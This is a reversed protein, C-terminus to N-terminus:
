IRRQLCSASETQAARRLRPASNLIRRTFRLFSSIINFAFTSTGPRIQGHESDSESDSSFDLAPIDEEIQAADLAGTSTIPVLV